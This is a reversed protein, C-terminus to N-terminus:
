AGIGALPESARAREPHSSSERSQRNRLGCVNGRATDNIGRQRQRMRSLQQHSGCVEGQIIGRVSIAVAQVGRFRDSILYSSIMSSKARGPATGFGELPRM